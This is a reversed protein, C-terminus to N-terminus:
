RAIKEGSKTPSTAAIQDRLLLESKLPNDCYATELIKYISCLITIGDTMIEFM